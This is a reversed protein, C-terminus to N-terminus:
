ARFFARIEAATRDVAAAPMMPWFPLSLAEASIRDTETAHGPAFAAFPPNRYVPVPYHLGTAIGAGALHARLADRPRTRVVFLHWVPADGQPTAPLTLGPVDALAAAYRAAVARRLATFRPAHALKVRLLAAQLEDLRSNTGIEDTHYKERAGYNRLLALRGELAADSTVVAGGDGLAGLNKTPYFSFCGIQGFSGMPRGQHTAGHAQAADEILVLGRDRCLDALASPDAPHGYLHVAIVARTRPTLLRAVMAASINYTGPAPECPVPTAGVAMVALWTAVFTHAPIIVEAGPGIGLARLALTIADLGNGVGLAHASGCFAAFESEFARLEPGLILANGDLVRHWAADLEPRLAAQEAALDLFPIPATM